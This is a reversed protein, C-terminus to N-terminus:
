LGNNGTTVLVYIKFLLVEDLVFQFNQCKLRDPDNNILKRPTMHLRQRTRGPRGNKYKREVYKYMQNLPVTTPGVM